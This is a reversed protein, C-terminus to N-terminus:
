EHTPAVLPMYIYLDKHHEVRMPLFIHNQTSTINAVNCVQKQVPINFCLPKM